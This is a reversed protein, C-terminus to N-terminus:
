RKRIEEIVEIYTVGNVHGIARGLGVRAGSRRTALLNQARSVAVTLNSTGATRTTAAKKILTPDEVVFQYDDDGSMRELNIDPLRDLKDRVVGYQDVVVYQRSQKRDFTSM